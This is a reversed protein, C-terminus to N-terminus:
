TTELELKRGPLAQHTENNARRGASSIVWLLPQRSAEAPPPGIGDTFYIVADPRYTENAFKIPATFDTGGGGQIEPPPNGRYPYSRQIETDCEVILIEAGQRWIHYLEGFFAHLEDEQISGSTDIAVLLRNRRQIKTGPVTGYRRSPRRITNKVYTSNSSASFLRLVRRWDFQPEMARIMARLRTLLHGRMSGFSASKHRVRDYTTKILENVMREAVTIEGPSLKAFDQWNAHRELSQACAEIMQEFASRADQGEGSENEGQKRDEDAQGDEAGQQSESGGEDGEDEEEGDGSDSAADDKDDGKSDTDDPESRGGSAGSSRGKGPRSSDDCDSEDSDEPEMDDAGDSPEAEKDERGADCQSKRVAEILLHYYYGVERDREVDRELAQELTEIRVDTELLQEPAIYQNVVLDAALYYLLPNAYEQVRFIHKLVIHLLEHKLLGLRQEPTLTEWFAQCISLKAGQRDLVSLSAASVDDTFSKPISMLFHGFFPDDLLLQIAVANISDNTGM